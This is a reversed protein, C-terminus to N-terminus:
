RTYVLDDTSLFSKRRVAGYPHWPVASGFQGGANDFLKM